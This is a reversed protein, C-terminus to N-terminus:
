TTPPSKERQLILIKPDQGGYRLNSICSASMAILVREVEQATYGTRLVVGEVTSTFFKACACATEYVGVFIRWFAPV